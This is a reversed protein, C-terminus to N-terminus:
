VEVSTWCKPCEAQVLYHGARNHRPRYTLGRAGCHGCKMRRCTAADIAATAATIHPPAGPQWAAPCRRLPNFRAIQPVAPTHQM